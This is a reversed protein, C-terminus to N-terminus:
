IVALGVVIFILTAAALGAGFGAIFWFIKLERLMETPKGGIIVADIFKRPGFHHKELIRHMEAIQEPTLPKDFLLENTM